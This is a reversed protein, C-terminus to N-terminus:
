KRRILKKIYVNNKYTIKLFCVQTNITLPVPIKNIGKNLETNSSYFTKGNNDIWELIGSIADNSSVYVENIFPNPFVHISIISFDSGNVGYVFNTDAYIGFGYDKTIQTTDVIFNVNAFLTDFTNVTIHHTTVQPLGSIDVQIKYNGTPIQNLSYYGITDTKQHIAPLNSPKYLLYVDANKVPGGNDYIITGYARCNGGTAYTYNYMSIDAQITDCTQLTITQADQWLWTDGYYTSAINPSNDPNLNEIKLYYSGPDANLFYTGNSEPTSTIPLNYSNAKILNASFNTNINLGTINGKVTGSNIFRVYLVDSTDRCQENVTIWYFHHPGYYSTGGTDITATLNNNTQPSPSFITNPVTDIWYGYGYAPQIASLLTYTPGCVLSDTPNTTITATQISGFYINVSDYGYCEGNFETWYMTITDNESPWYIWACASDRYSDNYHSASDNHADFFAIGSPGSWQGGPISPTACIHAFKDCVNFDLGADPTPSCISNLTLTDTCFCTTNGANMEKWVFRYIGCHSVTITTNPSNNPTFAASGPNGSVPMWIGTANEISWDGNTNFHKGCFTSDPFVYCTPIEYFTVLVSDLSSCVGGNIVHWYFYVPRQSNIYFNPVGSADVYANVPVNGTQNIVIGPLNCTWYASDVGSGITDAHLQTTYGCVSEQNGGDAHPTRYFIVETSDTANTGGGNVHHWYFWVDRQNNIFFNPVGSTEVIIQYQLATSDISIINIGSVSSTWYGSVANTGVTDATLETLSGCVSLPQAILQLSSMAALFFILKKM